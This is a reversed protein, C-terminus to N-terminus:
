ASTHTDVAQTMNRHQIAQAAKCVKMKQLDNQKDNSPTGAFKEQQLVFGGMPCPLSERSGRTDEVSHM